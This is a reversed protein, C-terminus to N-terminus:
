NFDQFQQIQLVTGKYSAIPAPVASTAYVADALYPYRIRFWIALAGPYSGGFIIVKSSKYEDESKLTDLLFALDALAQDVTNYKLGEATSTRFSFENVKM